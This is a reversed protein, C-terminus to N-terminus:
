NMVNESHLGSVTKILLFGNDVGGASHVHVYVNCIDYIM